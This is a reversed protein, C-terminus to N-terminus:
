FLRNFMHSSKKSTFKKKLERPLELKTECIKSHQYEPEDRIKSKPGGGDPKLDMSRRFKKLTREEVTPADDDAGVKRKRGIHDGGVINNTLYEILTGQPKTKTSDSKSKRKGRPKRTIRGGNRMMEAMRMKGLKLKTNTDNTSDGDNRGNKSSNKLDMTEQGADMEMGYALDDDMDELMQNTETTSDDTLMGYMRGDMVDMGTDRAEDVMGDMPDYLVDKACVDELRRPKKQRLEEVMEDDDDQNQREVKRTKSCAKTSDILKTEYKFSGNRSRKRLLFIVEKTTRRTPPNEGEKSHIDTSQETWEEARMMAIEVKDLIMKRAYSTTMMKEMVKGLIWDILDMMKRTGSDDENAEVMVDERQFHIGEQTLRDFRTNQVEPEGEELRSDTTNTTAVPGEEEEKDSRVESVDPTEVAWM